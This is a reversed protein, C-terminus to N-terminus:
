IIGAAQLNRISQDLDPTKSNSKGNKISNIINILNSNIQNLKLQDKHFKDWSDYNDLIVQFANCISEDTPPQEKVNKLLYAIISNLSKGQLGDFVGSCNTIRLCFNNYIDSCKQFVSKDTIIIEKKKSKNVKIKNVKSQPTETVTVGCQETNNSVYKGKIRLQKASLEKARGRKTYVPLLRDNLSESTIFGDKEFLLEIKCCYNIMDSIETVTIGFDGSLLEREIDSNEFVNGDSGTLFELFMCWFSYGNKFNQRLSKVKRHNRMGADHPFYECNNKQPRAM